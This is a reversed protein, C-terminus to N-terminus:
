NQNIRKKHARVKIRINKVKAHQITDLNKNMRRTFDDGDEIGKKLNCTPCALVLNCIENRGGYALAVYHEIHYKRKSECDVLSSACYYCCQEQICFLSDIQNQTYTGTNVLKSKRSLAARKSKERVRQESLLGELVSTFLPTPFEVEIPAPEVYKGCSCRGVSLLPMKCASCRCHTLIFEHMEKSLNMTNSFAVWYEESFKEEIFEIPMWNKSAIVKLLVYKTKAIIKNV